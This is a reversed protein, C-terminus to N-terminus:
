LHPPSPGLATRPGASLSTRAASGRQQGAERGGPLAARDRTQKVTDWKGKFENFANTNGQSAASHAIKENGLRGGGSNPPPHFQMQQRLAPCCKILM